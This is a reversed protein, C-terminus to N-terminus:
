VENMRHGVDRECGGGAVVASLRVDRRFVNVYRMVECSQEQRCERAVQLVLNFKM